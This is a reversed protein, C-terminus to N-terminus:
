GFHDWGASGVVKEVRSPDVITVRGPDGPVIEGVVSAGEPLGLMLKGVIEVKATFLLLYDEGGNLALDLYDDRFTQRLLPHVPIRDAYLRAAVGSSRCLKALDGALGDSVDMAAAVGAESLARGEAVAPRPRRHCQRLYAGAEASAELKELMLRLGGGSGGLYGTVAVQDGVRATSRLMPQGPHLGTLSVTIFAVPSSVVDGGIIAVGYQNGIELMGAYLEDVEEVEAEPSLGLTVLAYLPLGGMAAIDSINSALCKWGLDRWPTTSRTFHVGEVVTDTTLLETAVGTKWAATDDGTDVTLRFSYSGGNDPGRRQGVVLSNLRDILGFEGLEKIRMTLRNYRARGAQELYRGRRLLFNLNPIM